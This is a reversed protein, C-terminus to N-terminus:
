RIVIRGLPPIEESKRKPLEEVKDRKLLRFLVVFIM